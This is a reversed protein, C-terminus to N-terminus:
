VIRPCNPVIADGGQRQRRCRSGPHTGQCLARRHAYKCPSFTCRPGSPHNFLKCLEGGGGGMAKRLGPPKLAEEPITPSRGPLPERMRAYSLRILRASACLAFNHINPRGRSAFAIFHRITERGTSDKTVAVQHRFARDYQVWGLGSFERSAKIVIAQYAMM